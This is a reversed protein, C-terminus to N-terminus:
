GDCGGPQSGAAMLARLESTAPIAQYEEPTMESTHIAKLRMGKNAQVRRCDDQWDANDTRTYYSFGDPFVVHAVPITKSESM